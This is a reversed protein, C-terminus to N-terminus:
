GIKYVVAVVFVHIANLLFAQKPLLPFTLRNNNINGKLTQPLSVSFLPFSDRDLGYSLFSYEPSVRTTVVMRRVWALVEVDSQRGASVAEM